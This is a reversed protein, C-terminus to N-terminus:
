VSGGTVVRPGVVHEAQRIPKNPKNDNKGEHSPKNVSGGHSDGHKVNDSVEGKDKSPKASTSKDSDKGEDKSPKAPTEKGGEAEEGPKDESPKASTSEESGKGEDKSPKAPTEKGGEAEEGPKDEPKVSESPNTEEPKVDPSEPAPKSSAEDDEDCLTIKFVAQDCGDENVFAGALYYNVGLNSRPKLINKLFNAKSSSSGVDSGITANDGTERTVVCSTNGLLGDPTNNRRFDNVMQESPKMSFRPLVGNRFEDNEPLFLCGEKAYGNGGSEQPCRWLPGGVSIPLYTEAAETKVKASLKFTSVGVPVKDGTGPTFSILNYRSDSDMPPAAHGIDGWSDKLDSLGANQILSDEQPVGSVYEDYAKKLTTGEKSYDILVANPEGTTASLGKSGETDVYNDGSVDDVTKLNLDRNVERVPPTIAVSKAIPDWDPDPESVLTLKVDELQQPIALSFGRATQVQNSTVLGHSVQVTYEVEAEDGVKKVCVDGGRCNVIGIRGHNKVNDFEIANAESALAISGAAAVSTMGAFVLACTKRRMVSFM